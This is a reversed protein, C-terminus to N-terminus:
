LPNLWLDWKYLTESCTIQERYPIMEKKSLTVGNEYEGQKIIIGPNSGKWTMTSAWRIAKAASSLLTGNWHKELAAWCREVPNYKSHYPPYYVLHIRLKVANAFDVMRKIFQTRSSSNKPGNDLTIMLEQIGPYNKKNRKWWIELCDVIFDSTERSTGFVITFDGSRVCLIGFPILRGLVKTDHDLAKIPEESRSKGRRSLEGIKVVAKTDISIRLSEPDDDSEKSSKQINQFILDTEPIKKGAQNKARAKLSLEISEYHQM